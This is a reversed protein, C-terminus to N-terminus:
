SRDYRSRIPTFEDPHDRHSHGYVFEPGTVKYFRLAPRAGYYVYVMGSVPRNSLAAIVRKIDEQERYPNSRVIGFVGAALLAALFTATVWTRGKAGIRDSFANWGLGFATAVTPALFLDHRIPGLPYVHAVAAAGVIAISLIGLGVLFRSERDAAPRALLLVGLAPLV